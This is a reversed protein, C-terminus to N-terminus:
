RSKTGTLVLNLILCPKLLLTKRICLIWYKWTSGVCVYREGIMHSFYNCRWEGSEYDRVLVPDFPKFKHEIKDKNIEISVNEPNYKFGAKTIADFMAATERDTAKRYIEPLVHSISAETTNYISSYRFITTNADKMLYFISNCAIVDGPKITYPKTAVFTNWDRNEKCPFLICETNSYYEDTFVKGDETFTVKGDDYDKMLISYQSDDQIKIFECEGYIPSYFKTGEPVDKLIQAINM